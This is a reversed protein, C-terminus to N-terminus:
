GDGNDTRSGGVRLRDLGGIGTTVARKSDRGPEARDPDDAVPGGLEQPDIGPGPAHDRPDRDSAAREVDACAGTRDPPGVAVAAATEADVRARVAHLSRNAEGITEGRLRDAGAMTADPHRHLALLLVVLAAPELTRRLSRDEAAGRRRARLGAKRGGRRR